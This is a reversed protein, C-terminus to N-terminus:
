KRKLYALQLMWVYSLSRCIYLVSDLPAQVVSGTNCVDMLM